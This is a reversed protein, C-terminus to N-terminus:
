TRWGRILVYPGSYGFGFGCGDGNSYGNGYSFGNGSSNYNTGNGDDGGHGSGRSARLVYVGRCTTFVHVVFDPTM